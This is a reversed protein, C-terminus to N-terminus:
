TTKVKLKAKSAALASIYRQLGYADQHGSRNLPHGRLLPDPSTRKSQENFTSHVVQPAAFVM